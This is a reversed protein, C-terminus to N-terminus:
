ATLVKLFYDLSWGCKKRKMRLSPNKGSPDQFARLKNLAMRRLRAFNEGGDGQRIRSQDENFAMDLVWHVQNEIGWHGRIAAATRQADLRRHSAIYYRRETSVQGTIERRSEVVAVQRLGPWDQATPLWRVEDCVWVRRTEIRGHDGTTEEHYDHRLGQFHELIAEDLLKRTAEYLAPQNEKLALVYHGRGQLIKQAIDKQCGIADITVTAQHLNLLELLQPIAVIENEKREVKLQGLVLHNATAYAEVLHLPTKDWGHAFSRKLSKGDIAILRGGSSQGLAQTWSVFCREFGEPSLRAFVRRFTDASPTGHEPKVLLPRLFEFAEATWEEIDQWGECGCLVASVALLLLDCLLYRRNERRPDHLQGFLRLIEGPVPAEMGLEKKVLM